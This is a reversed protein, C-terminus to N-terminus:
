RKRRRNRIKDVKKNKVWRLYKQLAEAKQLAAITTYNKALEDNTFTVHITSHCPQCLNVTETHKGGEQKPLLHHKTVFSVTRQCLECAVPEEKRAM